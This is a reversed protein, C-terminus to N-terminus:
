NKERHGVLELRDDLVLHLRALEHEVAQETDGMALIRLEDFRTEAAVETSMRRRRAVSSSSWFWSRQSTEYESKMVKSNAKKTTIYAIEVSFSPLYRTSESAILEAKRCSMTTDACVWPMDGILRVLGPAGGTRGVIRAGSGMFFAISCFSM